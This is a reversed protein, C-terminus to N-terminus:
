QLEKVLRQLRARVQKRVELMSQRVMHHGPRRRGGLELILIYPVFNSIQLEQRAGRLKGQVDSLM